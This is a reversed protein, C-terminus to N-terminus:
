DWQARKAGGSPQQSLGLPSGYMSLGSLAFKRTALLRSRLIAEIVGFVIAASGVGLLRAAWIQLEANFGGELMHMVPEAFWWLTFSVFLAGIVLAVGTGVTHRLRTSGSNLLPVFANPMSYYVTTILIAPITLAVLFLDVEKSAGYGFAIFAERVLGIGRAAITVAVMTIGAQRIPSSTMTVSHVRDEPIAGM